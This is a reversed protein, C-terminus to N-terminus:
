QQISFPPRELVPPGKVSYSMKDKVSHALKEIEAVKRLQSVTLSASKGSRIEEDLENALKLLKNTDSVISKQREGNLAQLRREQEQADAPDPASISDSPRQGIGQQLTGGPHTNQAGMRLGPAMALCLVCGAALRAIRSSWHPVKM